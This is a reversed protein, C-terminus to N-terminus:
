VLEHREGLFLNAMYRNLLIQSQEDFGLFKNPNMNFHFMVDIKNQISKLENPSWNEAIIVLAFRAFEDELTIDNIAAVVDRTFIHSHGGGETERTKIPIFLHITDNNKNTLEISLDITHRGIKVQKNAIVVKKFNGYNSNIAFYTQVATVFGIRVSAELNHGSISRRSGELRDIIIEKIAQWAFSKVINRYEFFL